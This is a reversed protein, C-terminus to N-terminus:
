CNLLLSRPIDVSAEKKCSFMVVFFLERVGTTCSHFGSRCSTLQFRCGAIAKIRQINEYTGDELVDENGPVKMGQPPSILSWHSELLIIILTDLMRSRPKALSRKSLIRGKIVM